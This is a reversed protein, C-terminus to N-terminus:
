KFDPDEGAIPRGDSFPRESAEDDIPEEQLRSQDDGPGATDSGGAGPAPAATDPAPAATDPAPAATDPAPATTDPPVDTGGQPLGSVDSPDDAAVPLTRAPEDPLLGGLLPLNSGVLGSEQGAVPRELGSSGGGNLGGLVPLGGGGLLDGVVPLGLSNNPGDAPKANKEPATGAGPLGPATGAGPLKPPTVSNDGPKFDVIPPGGLPNEMTTDGGLPNVGGVAGGPDLVGGLLGGAGQDTAPLPLDDAQAPATGLLLVGGAAVAAILYRRM